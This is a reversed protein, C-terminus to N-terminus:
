DPARPGTYVFDQAQDAPLFERIHKLVTGDRLMAVMLADWRKAQDPTFSKRSLIMSGILFQDKPAWDYMAFDQTVKAADLYQRFVIPQSLVADVVGRDIMRIQDAVDTALVVRNQQTLREVMADYAAEHRFGRVLGLRLTSAEFAAQDLEPPANQRRVLLLNRAKMYPLLYGFAKREPTPISATAMDLTGAQLEAWIRARPMLVRTFRCNTRQELTDLLRADIGDATTSRYLLGFEFLAVRVPKSCYVNSGATSPLPLLGLGFLVLVAFRSFARHIAQNM